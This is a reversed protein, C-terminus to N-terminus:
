AGSFRISAASVSFTQAYRAALQPLTSYTVVVSRGKRLFAYQLTQVTLSKGVRIRLQYRVRVARAGNVTVVKQAIPGKALARLESTLATRYAAFPVAYPLPTVVVNVNTAFGLRVNSDLAIFKTPANPTKVSSVFPALQPNERAIRDVIGSPLRGDVVTWSAPVALSIGQGGVTHRKLGTAGAATGAVALALAVLALLASRRRM